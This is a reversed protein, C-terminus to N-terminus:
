RWRQPTPSWSRSPGSSTPSLGPLPRGAAPDSIDAPVAMGGIQGALDALRGDDAIDNVAVAFGDAALRLATAHGLGPPGPSWHWGVGSAPIRATGMGRCTLDGGRRQTVASRRLVHIGRHGPPVGRPRDGGPHRAPRAAAHRSLRAQAVALGRGAATHRHGPAVANVRIATGAVEMALSKVFGLVAGKAAVYHLDTASGALALESSIAVITGEGQRLMYPLVAACCNVTGGLIVALMRDWQDLSIDVVDIGEEYYGAASVLLDIQGFTTRGVVATVAARDSVDAQLSLDDDVLEPRYGGHALGVRAHRRARRASEAPRAPPLLSRGM